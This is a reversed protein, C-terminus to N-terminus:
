FRETKELDARITKMFAEHEQVRGAEEAEIDSREEEQLLNYILRKGWTPYESIERARLCIYTLITNPPFPMSPRSARVERLERTKNWHQEEWEEKTVSYPEGYRPGENEVSATEGKGTQAAKKRLVLPRLFDKDM